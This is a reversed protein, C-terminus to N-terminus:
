VRWQPGLDDKTKWGTFDAARGSGDARMVGISFKGGDQKSPSHSRRARCGPTRAAAGLQNPATAATPM